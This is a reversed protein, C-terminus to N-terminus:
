ILIVLMMSLPNASSQMRMELGTISADSLYIQSNIDAEILNKMRTKFATVRIFTKKDLFKKIGIEYSLSEEPKHPIVQGTLLMFDTADAPRYSKTLNFTYVNNGSLLSLGLNGSKLHGSQSHDTHRVGYNVRYSPYLMEGSLTSKIIINHLLGVRM